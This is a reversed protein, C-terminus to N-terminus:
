ELGLMKKAQKIDIYCDYGHKSMLSILDKSYLLTIPKDKAFEYADQGLHNFLNASNVTNSL